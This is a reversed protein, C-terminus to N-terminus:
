HRFSHRSFRHTRVAVYSFQVSSVHNPNRRIAIPATSRRRHSVHTLWHGIPEGQKGVPWNTL